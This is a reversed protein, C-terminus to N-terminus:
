LKVNFVIVRYVQSCVVSRSKPAHQMSLMWSIKTVSFSYDINFHSEHSNLIIGSKKPRM